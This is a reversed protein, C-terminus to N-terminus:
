EADAEAIPVTAYVKMTKGDVKRDGKFVEENKILQTLRAIVKANTVEPDDLEAVIEAISKPEEGLIEKIQGRLADGAAKKENAKEKAKAAKSELQAITVDIYNKIDEPTVEVDGVTVNSFEMTALAQLVTKKSVTNTM